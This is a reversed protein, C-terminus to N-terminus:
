ENEVKRKLYGDPAVTTLLKDELERDIEFHLLAGDLGVRKESAQKELYEWVATKPNNDPGWPRNPFMGEPLDEVITDFVICYSGQSVLPAYLELEKAVHEHTHNSDLCVLVIAGDDILELVQGVTEQEISSGEVLHLRSAMPHEEIAKRNHTRIDIDVGVVKRKPAAPDLPEGNEISDCVDLMAMLSASYIISGGHAIGTEVIIDPKVQWVIEQFAMMDTPVQIIPRGMWEFNYMYKQEFAKEMWKATLEQWQFEKRYASISKKKEVEFQSIPDTNQTMRTKGRSNLNDRVERIFAALGEVPDRGAFSFEGHLRDTDIPAFVRTPADPKFKVITSV